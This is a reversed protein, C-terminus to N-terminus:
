RAGAIVLPHGYGGKNSELPRPRLLHAFTSPESLSLFLSPDHDYLEAPSGIPVVHLAGMQDCSPALVHCIKPATFTVTHHARVFEGDSQPRDSEMGSPVDVAVIKAAPFGANIERILDLARDHAPGELGTGLLADVVVTARQMEATIELVAIVGAAELMRFNAAADGRLEEPPAALVVHLAAPHFRVHLLRAIALGDGGNNGKGCFVAIRRSPLPSFLRELIEAVRHAANEMLILGPIGREITLRDVERMQAATLAKM